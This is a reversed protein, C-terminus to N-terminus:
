SRIIFNNSVYQEADEISMRSSDVAPPPGPSKPIMSAGQPVSATM